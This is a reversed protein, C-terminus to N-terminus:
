KHAGINEIVALTEAPTTAALLNTRQEENVLLQALEKMTALHGSKDPAALCLFLDIPHSPEDNLLV